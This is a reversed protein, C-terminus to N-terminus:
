FMTHYHLSDSKMTPEALNKYGSFLSGDAGIKCNADDSIRNEIRVVYEAKFLRWGERM